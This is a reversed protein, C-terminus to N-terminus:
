LREEWDFERINEQEGISVDKYAEECVVTILDDDMQLNSVTLDLFDPNSEMISLLDATQRHTLTPSHRKAKKAEFGQHQHQGVVPQLIGKGDNAVEM